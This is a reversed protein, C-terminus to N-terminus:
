STTTPKQIVFSMCQAQRINDFTLCRIYASPYAKKCEAIEHLVQSADTCGFMPLKWMTWYRGDYYNPIRSNERYVYGLQVFSYLGPISMADAGLLKVGFDVHPQVIAKLGFVKAAVLINPNGAWKLTPKMILEKEETSYVKMGLSFGNKSSETLAADVIQKLRILKSGRMVANCTILVKPKCDSIRQAVSEASFGAFVVQFFDFKCYKSLHKNLSM